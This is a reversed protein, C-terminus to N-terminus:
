RPAVAPRVRVVGDNAGPVAGRVLLRNQEADIRVVELNRVTVRENGMRGSMNMGKIVRGPYTGAGISGPNRFGEHTGHTRKKVAFHHRKVVGATGRGKSTGIM